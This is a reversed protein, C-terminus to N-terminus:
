WINIKWRHFVQIKESINLLVLICIRNGAYYLYHARESAFQIFLSTKVINSSRFISDNWYCSLQLPILNGLITQKRLHWLGEVCNTKTGIGTETSLTRYTNVFVFAKPILIHLLKWIIYSLQLLNQLLM